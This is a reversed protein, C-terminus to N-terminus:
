NSGMITVTLTTAVGINNTVQIETDSIKTITFDEGHNLTDSVTGLTGSHLQIESHISWSPHNSTVCRVGFYRYTQDTFVINFPDDIVHKSMTQTHATIIDYTDADEDNTGIFEWSTNFYTSSYDWFTLSNITTATQMDIGNIFGSTQGSASNNYVLDTFSGNNINNELTTRNTPDWGTPGSGSASLLTVNGILKNVDPRLVAYATNKLTSPLIISKVEGIAYTDTFTHMMVDDSINITSAAILAIDVADKEASSMEVVVNSGDYKWYNQSVSAALVASVDPDIEWDVSPYGSINIGVVYHYIGNNGPVKRIANAM